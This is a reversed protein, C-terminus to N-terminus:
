ARPRRRDCYKTGTALLKAALLDARPRSEGAPGRYAADEANWGDVIECFQAFSGKAIEGSGRDIRWAQALAVIALGRAMIRRNMETKCPRDTCYTPNPGRSSIRQPKRGCNPCINQAARAAITPKAKRPAKAPAISEPQTAM